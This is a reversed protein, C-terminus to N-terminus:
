RVELRLRVEEMGGALMTVLSFVFVPTLWFALWTALPAGTMYWTFAAAPAGLCLFDFPDRVALLSAIAAPGCLAWMEWPLYGLLAPVLGLATGAWFAKLYPKVTEDVEEVEVLDNTM